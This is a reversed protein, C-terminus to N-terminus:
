ENEGGKDLKTLLFRLLKLTIGKRFNFVDNIVISWKQSTATINRIMKSAVILWRIIWINVIVIVLMTLSATVYFIDQWNIEM